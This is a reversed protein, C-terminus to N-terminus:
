GGHWKFLVWHPEGRKEERIKLRVLRPVYNEDRKWNENNTMRIPMNGLSPIIKQVKKVNEIEIILFSSRQNGRITSKNTSDESNRACSMQGGPVGGKSSQLEAQTKQLKEPEPPEVALKEPPLAGPKQPTNCLSWHTPKTALVVEALKTAVGAPQVFPSPM